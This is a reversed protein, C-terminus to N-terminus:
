EAEDNEKKEKRQRHEQRIYEVGAVDLVALAIVAVGIAVFAMLFIGVLIAIAWPKGTKKAVMPYGYFGGFVGMAVVALWLM